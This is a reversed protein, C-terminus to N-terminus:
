CACVRSYSAVFGVSPFDSVLVKNFVDRGENGVWGGMWDWCGDLRNRESEDPIWRWGVIRGRERGTPIFTRARFKEKLPLKRNRTTEIQGKGERGWCVCVCVGVYFLYIFLYICSYILCPRREM